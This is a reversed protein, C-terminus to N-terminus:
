LTSATSAEPLREARLRLTVTVVGDGPPVSTAATPSMAQSGVSGPHFPPFPLPVAHACFAM